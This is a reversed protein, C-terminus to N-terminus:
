TCAVWVTFAVVVLTAAAVGWVAALLLALEALIWIGPPHERVSDRPQSRGMPMPRTGTSAISAILPRLSRGKM